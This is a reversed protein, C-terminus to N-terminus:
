QTMAGSLKLANHLDAGTIDRNNDSAISQAIRIINKIQRGNINYKALEVIEKDTIQQKLGASILLNNWITERKESTLADYKLSVSIRSLMAQDIHSARNTTLFLVGDHYELLRLFIGVMANRVINVDDREEVFIDVEDILLVADWYAALELIDRLRTELEDPDVGLEGISVSYLPRQLVEATAEATLTKGTGAPGHLLFICGGGKGKIIDTFAKGSQKVLSTIMDKKWDDLVLSDLATHVFEITELKEIDLEGWKKCSMAFGYLRMDATWEEGEPITTVVGPASDEYGFYDPDMRSFMARDVMVRGNAKFLIDGFWSRRVLSGTYEGYFSKKTVEQYKKGLEMLEAKEEASVHKIGIDRLTKGDDYMPIRLIHDESHYGSSIQAYIRINVQLFVDGLFGRREELLSFYGGRWKNAANRFVIEDGTNFLKKLDEYLYVSEFDTDTEVKPINEKLYVYFDCLVGLDAAYFDVGGETVSFGEIEKHANLKMIIGPVLKYLERSTRVLHKDPVFGLSNDTPKTLYVCSTVTYLFDRLKRNNIFLSKGKKAHEGVFFPADEKTNEEKKKVKRFFM